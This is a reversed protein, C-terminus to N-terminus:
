LTIVSDTFLFAYLIKTLDNPLFSNKPFMSTFTFIINFNIEFYYTETKFHILISWLLTKPPHLQFHLLGYMELFAVFNNSLQNVMLKGLFM